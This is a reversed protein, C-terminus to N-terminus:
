PSAAPESGLKGMFRDWRYGSGASAERLLALEGRARRLAARLDKRKMRGGAAAHVAGAAFLGPLLAEFSERRFWTVEEFDNVHVARMFGPDLCLKQPGTALEIWASNQVLFSVMAPADEIVAPAAGTRDALERILPALMWEDVRDGFPQLLTWAWLCALAVQQERLGADILSAGPKDMWTPRSGGPATGRLLAVCAAILPEGPASGELPVAGRERAAEIFRRCAQGARIVFSKEDDALCAPRVARLLRDWTDGGTLERLSEHLPRLERERLAEELRPVGRGDLEAALRAWRGDGDDVIRFDLFVQCQYAGLAVGLGGERLEVASRAFELGSLHERFLVYDSKGSPLGLGEALSRRVLSRGGQRKVAFAVSTRIIGRAEAFRNNYLVLAREGGRTNSYAFLDENVGGGPMELDYLLFGEVGAFLRRRGLLPFIEREFRARLGESPTENWYARRFEMGYKERFGEIQGHAFMPLGPLTSLLVCVGFFKDGDGFQAIATEEDPNSMFNVFRKLVEPDFELTNKMVQRYGANDEAKLMHMFASNYVRHMGLTRVFFGELLWFAEALLLTDPAERSIRDVVERWFEGPMARDFDHRSLGAGARSPIDGGSGPEPYWLRQFHKKTLTMAADFRIIPFQRAVRLITQIVAERTDPRLFDLQATDNWPMHTGDNGHYICRTEGTAFDVRKFVVAADTRTWYHDELFVGVGSAGSLNPGNFTYSPFPPVGGSSVLFREPHEVVWRSDIGTHNPVMDSALRIGRSWARGKLSELAGDGGLEAAIVYDALSYASAEAEPNGMRRKIERSAPSREWVGILWLATFGARALRDLEEDPVQDLTRIERGFQRSLQDLWVLANKAMMVARPMWDLDASFAERELADAGYHPVQPPGPTFVAFRLKEEERLIDLGTLLRLLLEGLLHGWRARIFDIQGALSRPSARMPSELLSLLDQGEPGFGPMGRFFDGLAEILRPYETEAELEGDDFCEALPSFGPNDNALRLLLLEELALLNEGARGDGAEPLPFQARFRELTKELPARGVQTELFSLAETLARPAVTQQYLAVVVHLVEHILGMANVDGARVVEVPSAPLRAQNVAHAVLRAKHADIPLRSAELGFRTRAAVSAHLHCSPLTPTM